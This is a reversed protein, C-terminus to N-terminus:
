QDCLHTQLSTSTAIKAWCPCVAVLPGASQLKPVTRVTYISFTEEQYYKINRREKLLENHLNITLLIQCMHPSNLLKSYIFTKLPTFLIHISVEREKGNAAYLVTIDKSFKRWNAQNLLLIEEAQSSLFSPIKKKKKNLLRNALKLTHPSLFQGKKGPLANAIM